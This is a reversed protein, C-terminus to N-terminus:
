NSSHITCLSSINKDFLNFSLLDLTLKTSHAGQLLIQICNTKRQLVQFATQNTGIPSKQVGLTKHTTTASLQSLPSVITNKNFKIEIIPKFKWGRAVALGSITFDYYLFHYWCKTDELAGGSIAACWEMATCWPYCVPTINQHSFHQNASIM